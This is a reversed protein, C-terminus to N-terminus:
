CFSYKCHSVLVVSIKYKGARSWKVDNKETSIKMWFMPKLLTPRPINSIIYQHAFLKTLESM